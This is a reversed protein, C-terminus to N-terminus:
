IQQLRVDWVGTVNEGNSAGSNNYYVSIVTDTTSSVSPVSVWITANETTYNEIEFPIESGSNDCYTDVFRIDDWDPQVDSFNGTSNDLIVVM